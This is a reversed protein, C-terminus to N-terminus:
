NPGSLNSTIDSFSNHTGDNFSNNSGGGNTIGGPKPTASVTYVTSFPAVAELVRATRQALTDGTMADTLDCDPQLGFLALTETLAQIRDGTLCIRPEFLDANGRMARLIPALTIAERQTGILFLLKM